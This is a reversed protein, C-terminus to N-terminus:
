LAHIQWVGQANLLLQQQCALQQASSNDGALVQIVIYNQARLQAIVSPEVHAPAFIKTPIVALSFFDVLANLDASFGTAPRARGFAEGIHDYRGGKAIEAASRPTYAAFVLGTHYHYGRLESLDISLAVHPHTSQLAQAVQKYKLMLADQHFQKLRMALYNKPKALILCMVQCNDRIGCVVNCSTATSIFRGTRAISKRQYIDFLQAELSPPYNRPKPLSELCRWM